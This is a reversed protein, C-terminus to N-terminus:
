FDCVYAHQGETLPNYIPNEGSSDRLDDTEAQNIPKIIARYTKITTSDEQTKTIVALHRHFSM